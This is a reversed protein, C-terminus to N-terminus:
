LGEQLGDAEGKVDNTRIVEVIAARVIEHVPRQFLDAFGPDHQMKQLMKDLELVDVYQGSIKIDKPVQAFHAPDTPTFDWFHVTCFNKLRSMLLSPTPLQKLFEKM